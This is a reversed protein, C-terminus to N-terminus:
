QDSDPPSSTSRRSITTGCHWTVRRVVRSPTTVETSVLWPVIGTADPPITTSAAPVISLALNANSDNGLSCIPRLRIACRREFWFCVFVAELAGEGREGIRALGAAVWFIEFEPVRHIRGCLVDRGHEGVALGM